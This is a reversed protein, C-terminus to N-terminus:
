QRFGRVQHTSARWNTAPLTVEVIGRDIPQHNANALEVLIKHPGPSLGAVIIQNGSADIWQWPSDDITVQLHGVRPSVALAEAGFVPAFQLNEARYPIIVVGRSLPEPLPSDIIIKAAPQGQRREALAQGETAMSRTKLREPVTFEVAGEDLAQHNANVLQMVVRHRGPPLGQVIVPQGSTNAWVWRANDVSVHVHGLRPSVALAAPGFVPVVQLHETRYRIVAAGSSLPAALPPEIIIRAKPEDAPPGVGTEGAAKNATQAGTSVALLCVIALSQITREPM